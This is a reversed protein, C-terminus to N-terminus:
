PEALAKLDHDQTLLNTQPLVISVDMAQRLAEFAILTKVHSSRRGFSNDAM